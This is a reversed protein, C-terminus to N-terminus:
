RQAEQFTIKRIVPEAEDAFEAPGPHEWAWSVGHLGIWHYLAHLHRGEIRVDTVVSGVFRVILVPGGGPTEGPVLRVRELDAYSFGEYSFDRTVFHLTLEPKNGHRAHVRYPEGPRPLPDSREVVPGDSEPTQAEGAAPGKELLARISSPSVSRPRVMSDAM